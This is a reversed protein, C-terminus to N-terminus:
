TYHRPGFIATGIRVMTSGEEIAWEFDSSMGMSLIDMRVNNLHMARIKEALNRLRAFCPRVLKEDDSFLGVTMLGQIKLYKLEAIQAILEPAEEPLCGSKSTEGSTNVEVLIPMVKNERACRKEIELALPMRDVSQIMEFLQVAYKVKNTQLVGIMHWTVPLVEPKKQRAEQVRNEGIITVGAQIAQNIQEPPVTKTVAVLEVSEPTRGAREAARAIREQVRRLNEQIQNM